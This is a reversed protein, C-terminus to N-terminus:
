DEINKLEYIFHFYCRIKTNMQIIVQKIRKNEDEYPNTELLENLENVRSKLSEKEKEYYEILENKKFKM